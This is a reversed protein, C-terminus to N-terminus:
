EAGRQKQLNKGADGIDIVTAMSFRHENSTLAELGPNGIRCPRVRQCGLAISIDNAGLPM